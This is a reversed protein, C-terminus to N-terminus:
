RSTSWPPVILLLSSVFLVCLRVRVPPLLVSSHSANGATLTGARASNRAESVDGNPLKKRMIPYMSIEEQPIPVAVLLLSLRQSM